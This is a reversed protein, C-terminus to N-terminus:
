PFKRQLNERHEMPGDVVLAPSKRDFAGLDAIKAQENEISSAFPLPEHALIAAIDSFTCRACSTGGALLRLGHRQPKLRRDLILQLQESRPVALRSAEPKQQCPWFEM